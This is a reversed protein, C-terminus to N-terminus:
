WKIPDKTINRLIINVVGLLAVQDQPDIIQQGTVQQIGVAILAIINAWLTKSHLPNKGIKGTM